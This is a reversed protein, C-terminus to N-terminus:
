PEVAPREAQDGPCSQSSGASAPEPLPRPLARIASRTLLLGAVAATLSIWVLVPSVDGRHSLAIHTPGATVTVSTGVWALVLPSLARRAGRRWVLAPVAIAGALVLLGTALLATRQAVTDFGAPGGWHPAVVSWVALVAAYGAAVAATVATLGRDGPGGGRLRAVGMRFLVPWRDRAHGVFAIPLTVAQVVFGGYVLAFVWGDLGNGAPAPSGGAFAQAVLGLPLGIAIPALLGCAVWVPGAVVVAPLRHGWPYTLAVVLAVAFLEMGATVVDGVIHRVDLLEAAGAADAAGVPDGLLWLVKLVLYPLCSLIAGWCVVVRPLSPARPPAGSPSSLDVTSM